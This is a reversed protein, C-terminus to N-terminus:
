SKRLNIMTYSSVIRFVKGAEQSVALSKPNIEGQEVLYELISTSTSFNEDDLNIKLQELKGDRTEVTIFTTKEDSGNVVHNPQEKRKGGGELWLLLWCLYNHLFSKVFFILVENSLM